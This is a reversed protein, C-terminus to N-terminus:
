LGMKERLLHLKSVVEAIEKQIREREEQPAYERFANILEKNKDTLLRTLESFQRNLRVDM